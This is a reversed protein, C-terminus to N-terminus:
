PNWNQGSVMDAVCAPYFIGLWFLVQPLLKM